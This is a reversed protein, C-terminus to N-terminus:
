PTPLAVLVATVLVVLLATAVEARASLRLRKTAVPEGLSPRVRRWNYFGLAAVVALLAVKLLLMQGYATGFLEAPARVHFLANVVGTVGVVGAGVLAVPSFAHVMAAVARPGGGDPAVLSAPLGAALLTALTGLWVGGGLVHLSDSLIALGPLREAAAAHGSLAPVAALIVAAVAAGMWGASRGHPARAVLLGVFFAVTALSQLVWANGWGTGTLLTRLPEGEFARAGNLAASQVWLRAMLTLASLAAAAAALYWAAYMARDAVPAHEASHSLPVAVAFRFGVAGIMGLLSLFWGWRVLVPLVGDSPSSEAEAGEDVPPALAPQAEAPGDTSAAVAAGSDASSVPAPPAAVSFEITGNIVHGDAGATRWALVYAGPALNRGALSLVYERRESGAVESAAGSVVTDGGLLLAISTFQPSVGRTFRIRLESLAGAEVTDGAAPSSSELKTHADAARPLALALVLAALAAAALRAFAGPRRPVARFAHLLRASLVLM